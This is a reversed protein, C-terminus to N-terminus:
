QSIPLGQNFFSHFYYLWKENVSHAALKLCLRLFHKLIKVEFVGLRFQCHVVKEVQM